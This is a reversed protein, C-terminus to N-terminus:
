FWQFAVCSVVSFTLPYVSGTFINGDSHTTDEYFRSFSSSIYSKDESNIRFADSIWFMKQKQNKKAISLLQHTMSKPKFKTPQYGQNNDLSFIFQDKDERVWAGQKEPLIGHFSGFVDGTNTVVVFMVNKRGQVKKWLANSELEDIESDYIKLSRTLGTWESLLDMSNLRQPCTAKESEFGLVDNNNIVKATM